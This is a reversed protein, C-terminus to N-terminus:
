AARTGALERIRTLAAYRMADRPDVRGAGVIRTNATGCGVGQRLSEEVPKGRARAALFGALFADGSGVSAVPEVLDM